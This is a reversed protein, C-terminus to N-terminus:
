GAGGRQKLTGLTYKDLQLNNQPQEQAIRALRPLHNLHQIIQALTSIM